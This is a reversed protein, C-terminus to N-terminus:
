ASALTAAHTLLARTHAETSLAIAAVAAPTFRCSSSYDSAVEALLAGFRLQDHHFCTSPVGYATSLAHLALAEHGGRGADSAAAGM